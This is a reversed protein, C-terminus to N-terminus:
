LMKWPKIKNPEKDYKKYIALPINDKTKFLVPLVYNKNELISGNKIKTSLIDDVIISSFKDFIIKNDVFSYNNNKVDELTYSNEINFDGQKTRNLTELMGVTNLNDAIDRALSRIYTGKSVECKIKFKTCNDEYTIDSILELKKIKVERKPLKVKEDKRAYEYLKKGNIKIASFIPVEQMYTKPFKKLSEIIEDKTLKTNKTEIVNGTIDLTDTTKGLIITAEYEKDYATILEVYKTAQGICLVLVGTAFPDLTGNHGIKKIGLYSSVENVVDRSTMGKQKNIVLIGEKNNM